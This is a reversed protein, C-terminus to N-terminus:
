ANTQLDRNEQATRIGGAHVKNLEGSREIDTCLASTDSGRVQEANILNDMQGDRCGSRTGGTHNGAFSRGDSGLDASLLIESIEPNESQFEKARKLLERGNGPYSAALGELYSWNRGCLCECIKGNQLLM